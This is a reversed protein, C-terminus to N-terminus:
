FVLESLFVCSHTPIMIWSMSFFLLPNFFMSSYQDFPFVRWLNGTGGFSSTQFSSLRKLDIFEASKLVGNKFALFEFIMHSISVVCTLALLIPSTELLAEKISDQSADSEEM